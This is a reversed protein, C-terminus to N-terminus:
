RRDSRAINVYRQFNQPDRVFRQVDSERLKRM